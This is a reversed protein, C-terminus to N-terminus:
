TDNNSNINTSVCVKETGEPSKPATSLRERRAGGQSRLRLGIGLNMHGVYEKLNYDHGEKSKLESLKARKKKGLFGQQRQAFSKQAESAQERWVGSGQVIEGSAMSKRKSERTRVSRLNSALNVSNSVVSCRTQLKYEDNLTGSPGVTIERGPEDGSRWEERDQDDLIEEKLAARHM